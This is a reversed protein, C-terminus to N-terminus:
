VCASGAASIIVLETTLLEVLMGNSSPHGDNKQPRLTNGLGFALAFLFFLLRSCVRRMLRSERNSVRGATSKKVPATQARPRSPASLRPSPSTSTPNNRKQCHKWRKSTNFDFMRCFLVKLQINATSTTRSSTPAYPVYTLMSPRTAQIEFM